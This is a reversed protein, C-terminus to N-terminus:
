FMKRIAKIKEGDLSLKRQNDVSVGGRFGIYTPHFTLVKELHQITLSGALGFAMECSRIHSSFSLMKGESYYDLFTAGNKQATDLMIGYFGACKIQEVLHPSYEIEAFLVAILKIGKKAIESLADLCAQYCESPFFGIKVFDVETNAVALVQRIILDSQMPLDGVTASTYQEQSIRHAKVYAVVKQIKEVPLAGLAGEHPNKLDILDAGHSLALQAENIDVVSILLQTM